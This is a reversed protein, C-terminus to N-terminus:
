YEPCFECLLVGHFRFYLQYRGSQEDRHGHRNGASNSHHVIANATAADVAGWCMGVHIDRAAGVALAVRPKAPLDHSINQVWALTPHLDFM